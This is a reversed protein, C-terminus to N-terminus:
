NERMNKRGKKARRAPLMRRPAQKDTDKDEATAKLGLIEEIEEMLKPKQKKFEPQEHWGWFGIGSSSYMIATVDLTLVKPVPLLGLPRIIEKVGFTGRDGYWDKSEFQQHSSYHLEVDLKLNKLGKLKECALGLDTQFNKGSRFRSTELWRRKRWYVPGCDVHITLSVSRIAAAAKPYKDIFSSLVTPSHAAVTTNKCLMATAEINIERCVLLISTRDSKLPRLPQRSRGCDIELPTIVLSWIMDKIEQPFKMLYCDIPTKAPSNEVSGNQVQTTDNKPSGALMKALSNNPSSNSKKVSSKKLSKKSTKALSNKPSIKPM